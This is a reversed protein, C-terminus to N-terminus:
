RTAYGLATAQLQLWYAAGFAIALIPAAIALTRWTVLGSRGLLVPARAGLMMQVIGLGVLLPGLLAANYRLDVSPVGALMDVYPRYLFAYGAAFGCLTCFCGLFRENLDGAKSTETTM